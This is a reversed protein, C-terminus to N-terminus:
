ITQNDKIMDRLDIEVDGSLSLVYNREEYGLICQRRIWSTWTHLSIGDDMCSIYLKDVDMSDLYELYAEQGAKNRDSLAHHYVTRFLYYFHIFMEDDLRRAEELVPQQSRCFKCLQDEPVADNPPPTVPPTPPAASPLDTAGKAAQEEIYADLYRKRVWSPWECFPLQIGLVERYLEPMPLMQLELTNVKALPSEEYELLIVIQASKCLMQFHFYLADNIRPQKSVDCKCVREFRGLDDDGTTASLDSSTRKSLSNKRTVARLPSSEGRKKEHLKRFQIAVPRSQKQVVIGIEKMNMGEVNVNGVRIVQNGFHVLGSKEAQGPTGDPASDFSTVLVRKGVDSIQMGLPGSQFVVTVTTDTWSTSGAAADAALGGASAGNPGAGESTELNRLRSVTEKDVRAIQIKPPRSATGDTSDGNSSVSAAVAAAAAVSTPVSAARVDASGAEMTDNESLPLRFRIRVPRPEARVLDFVGQMDLEECNNGAVSVVQSGIEIEQGDIPAGTDSDVIQAELAQGDLHWVLVGKKSVHLIQLGLPGEGFEVDVLKESLQIGHLKKLASKSLRKRMSRSRPSVGNRTPPAPGASSM